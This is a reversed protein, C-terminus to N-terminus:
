PGWQSGAVVLGDTSWTWNAEANDALCAVSLRSVTDHPPTRGTVSASAVIGSRIREMRRVGYM